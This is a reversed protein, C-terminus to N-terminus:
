LKWGKQLHTYSVPKIAEERDFSQITRKVLDIADDIPKYFANETEKCDQWLKLAKERNATPHFREEIKVKLDKLAKGFTVASVRQEDSKVVMARAKNVYPTVETEIAQKQDQELISM